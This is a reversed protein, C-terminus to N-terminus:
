EPWHGGNVFDWSDSLDTAALDGAERMRGAWSDRVSKNNKRVPPHLTAVIKGRRTLSIPAQGSEVEAIIALCKAKFETVNVFREAAM